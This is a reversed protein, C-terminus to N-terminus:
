KEIRLPKKRENLDNEKLKLGHKKQRKRNGSMKSENLGKEM